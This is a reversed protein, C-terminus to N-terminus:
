PQGADGDLGHKLSQTGVINGVGAPPRCHLAWEM